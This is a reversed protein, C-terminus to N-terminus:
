HSIQALIAMTGPDGELVVPQVDDYIHMKLKRIKGDKCGQNECIVRAITALYNADIEITMKKKNKPMAINPDPMRVKPNKISQGNEHPCITEDKKVVMMLHNLIKPTKEESLSVAAKSIIANTTDGEEPQCPVGIVYHPNIAWVKGDKVLLAGGIGPYRYNEPVKDKAAIKAYQRSLRMENRRIVQQNTISCPMMQIGLTIYGEKDGKEMKGNSTLLDM